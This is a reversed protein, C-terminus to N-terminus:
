IGDCGIILGFSHGVFVFRNILLKKKDIRNQWKQEDNLIIIDTKISPRADRSYNSLFTMNFVNFVLHIRDGNQKALIFHTRQKGM